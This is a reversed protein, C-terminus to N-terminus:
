LASTASAWQCSCSRTIRTRWWAMGSCCAQLYCLQPVWRALSQAQWTYTQCDGFSRLLSVLPETILLQAGVDDDASANSSM